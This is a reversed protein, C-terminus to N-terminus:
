STEEGDLGGRTLRLIDKECGEAIATYRKENEIDGGRVSNWAFERSEAALRQLAETDGDLFANHRLAEVSLGSTFASEADM